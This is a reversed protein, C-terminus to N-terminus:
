KIIFFNIFFSLIVVKALGKASFLANSCKGDAKYKNGLLIDGVRIIGLWMRCISFNVTM